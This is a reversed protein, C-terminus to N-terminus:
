ESDPIQVITDWGQKVVRFRRVFSHPIRLWVSSCSNTSGNLDQYTSVRESGSISFLGAEGLWPDPFSEVLIQFPKYQIVQFVIKSMGSGSDFVIEPSQPTPRSATDLGVSNESLNQTFFKAAYYILYVPVVCFKEFIWDESLPTKGCALM